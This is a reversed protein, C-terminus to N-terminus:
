QLFEKGAGPGGWFEALAAKDEPSATAKVLLDYRDGLNHRAARNISRMLGRQGDTLDEHGQEDQRLDYTYQYGNM